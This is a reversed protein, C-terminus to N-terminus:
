VVIPPLGNIANQYVQNILARFEEETFVYLSCHSVCLKGDPEERHSEERIQSILQHTIHKNVKHLLQDEIYGKMDSVNNGAFYQEIPEKNYVKATIIM